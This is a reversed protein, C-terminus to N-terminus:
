PTDRKPKRMAQWHGELGEVFRDAAGDEFPVDGPEREDDHIGHYDSGGSALLAAGDALAALPGIEEPSLNKYYVELGALGAGSLEAVAAAADPLFCPHALVAVGGAARILDIAGHPPLKEREAAVPGGDRLYRDFAERVSKVYAREVMAHAVHPRGVAAEGAIALVREWALPMGLATLQEVMIRGRQQRGDRYAQLQGQFATDGLTAAVSPFYGLLHYDAGDTGDASLEVGAILRVSATRAAAEAEALGATTDHDTVALVEVGNAAARAVLESPTLVGDSHRTHTHFDGRAM